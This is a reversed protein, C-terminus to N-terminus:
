FWHRIQSAFRKRRKRKTDYANRLKMAIYLTHQPDWQKIDAYKWVFFLYLDMRNTFRKLNDLREVPTCPEKKFQMRNNDILSFELQGDQKKHYLVNTPNLDNHLIGHDHLYILFDLFAQALFQDFPKQEVLAKVSTDHTIDSIFYCFILQGVRNKTEIYAIPYPTKVGRELLTIANQFARQAKTKRFFSYIWANLWNPRKYRKVVVTRQDIQFAKLWNRGRFLTTGETEFISPLREVFTNIGRDYIYTTNIQVSM